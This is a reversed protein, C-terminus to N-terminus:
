NDRVEFTFIDELIATHGENEIKLSVTYYGVPSDVKADVYMRGGGIVTMYKAFDDAAEQGNSSKVRYLSYHLPETGLVQEIQATTWPINKDIQEQLQSIQERLTYPDALGINGCMSSITNKQSRIKREAPAVVEDICYTYEDTAKNLM